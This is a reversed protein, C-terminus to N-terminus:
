RHDFARIGRLGMPLCVLTEGLHFPIEWDGHFALGALGNAVVLVRTDSVPPRQIDIRNVTIPPATGLGLDLHTNPNQATVVLKGREEDITVYGVGSLTELCRRLMGVNGGWNSVDVLTASPDCRIITQDSTQPLKTVRSDYYM